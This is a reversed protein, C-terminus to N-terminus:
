PKIDQSTIVKRRKNTDPTGSWSTLYAPRGSQSSYLLFVLTKTGHNGLFYIKIHRASKKDTINMTAIRLEERQYLFYSESGFIMQIECSIEDVLSWLRNLHYLKNATTGISPTHEPIM